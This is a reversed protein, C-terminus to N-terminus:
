EMMAQPKAMQYDHCSKTCKRRQSQKWCSFNRRTHTQTHTQMHTAEGPDSCTEEETNRMGSRINAVKSEYFKAFHEAIDQPKTLLRGDEQVCSPSVTHKRGLLSNITNWTQKPNGTCEEFTDRYFQTKAKRCVSVVRNRLKRYVAWDSELGTTKAERKAENRMEMLEKIDPTLWPSANSRFTFKRIPAYTDCTDQLIDAFM